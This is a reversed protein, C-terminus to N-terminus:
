FCIHQIIILLARALEELAAVETSTFADSTSMNHHWWWSLLLQQIVDPSSKLWNTYIFKTVGDEQSVLKM